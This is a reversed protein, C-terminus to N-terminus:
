LHLFKVVRRSHCRCSAPRIGVVRGTRMRHGAWDVSVGTRAAGPGESPPNETMLMAGIMGSVRVLASAVEVKLVVDM